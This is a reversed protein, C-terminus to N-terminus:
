RRGPIYRPPVTLAPPRVPAPRVAQSPPATNQQGPPQAPTAAPQAPAAGTRAGETRVPGGKATPPGGYLPLLFERDDATVVLGDTRVEKVSFGPLSDGAALEWREAPNGAKGVVIGRPRDGISLVGLLSFRALEAEYNRAPVVPVVPERYQQRDQRFLPRASVSAVTAGTDLPSPDPVAVGPHWTGAADAPANGAAPFPARLAQRTEWGFFLALLVFVPVLLGPKRM